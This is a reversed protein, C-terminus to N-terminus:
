SKVRGLISISYLNRWACVFSEQGNAEYIRADFHITCIAPLAPAPKSYGKQVRILLVRWRNSLAIHNQHSLRFHASVRKRKRGQIRVQKMRWVRRYLSPPGVYVVYVLSDTKGSWVHSQTTRGILVKCARESLVRNSAICMSENLTAGPPVHDEKYSRCAALSTRAVCTGVKGILYFPLLHM